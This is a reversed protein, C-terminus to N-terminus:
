FTKFFDIWSMSRVELSKGNEVKVQLSSKRNSSERRVEFSRKNEFAVLDSIYSDIFCNSTIRIDNKQIVDDGLGLNIQANSNTSSILNDGKLTSLQLEIKEHDLEARLTGSFGSMRFSKGSSKISSKGHINKLLAQRTSTFKSNSTYCSSIKISGADVELNEGQSQAISVDQFILM